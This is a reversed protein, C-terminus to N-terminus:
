KRCEPVVARGVGASVVDRHGRLVLAERVGGLLQQEAKVVHGVAVLESTPM